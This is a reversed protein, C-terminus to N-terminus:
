PSKAFLQTFYVTGNGSIAVGIGTVNYTSNLMNNNHGTSNKWSNLAVAPPDAYGQNWHVNEAKSSATMIQSIQVFRGDAGYHDIFQSQSISGNAANISHQRAINAIGSSWALSARGYNARHANVLQHTRSEYQSVVSSAADGFKSWQGSTMNAAWQPTSTDIYYWAGNYSCYAWPWSWYSWGARLASKHLRYWLGSTMNCVWTGGGSPSLYRWTSDSNSVMYLDTDTPRTAWNWGSPRWALATQMLLAGVVIAFLAKKM